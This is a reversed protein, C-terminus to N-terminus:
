RRCAAMLDAAISGAWQGIEACDRFDGRMGRIDAGQAAPAPYNDDPNHERLGARPDHLHRRQPM